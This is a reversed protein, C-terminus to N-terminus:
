LLGEMYAWRHPYAAAHSRRHERGHTFTGCATLKIRTNHTVTNMRTRGRFVL